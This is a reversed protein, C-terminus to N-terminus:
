NKRFRDSNKAVDIMMQLAIAFSNEDLGFKPHHHPYDNGNSGSGIFIYTAPACRAFASFDEGGLMAPLSVVRDGHRARAIERVIATKEPANWTVSYGTQYNLTYRAGAAECLSAILKEISEHAFQRQAESTTRVSGTLEASDPIVNPASGARFMTNSIVMSDHPSIRRAVISQLLTVFQAGIVVPDISQEPMAAHGGKGHITIRYIDTNASAAGDKIDLIGTESTSFLHHGYIYDFDDFYGTAVMEAAGGPPQEEAHQFIAHIEGSFEDIHDDIYQCAAMLVATHGDHGCAHMVGDNQSKFPLEDREEQIPLADIDARLGLKTGPRGTKFVVVVSTPTLREIAAVNKLKGMEAAIYRSTEVEQFSLEPHQHLHRRWAILQNLYKEM